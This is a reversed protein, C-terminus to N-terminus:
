NLQDAIQNILEDAADYESTDSYIGTVGWYRVGYCAGSYCNDGTQYVWNGSNFDAVSDAGITLQIGPIEDDDFARYEDSIDAKVARILQSLEDRQESNINM